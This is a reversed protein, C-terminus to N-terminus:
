DLTKNCVNQVRGSAVFYDPEVFYGTAWAMRTAFTEANVETGFKVNWEMGTADSVRIKPNSGSLNEEIFTFPPKPAAARGGVGGVFDLSEVAGPDHWLIPKGPQSPKKEKQESNKEKQSLKNEKQLAQGPQCILLTLFVTVCALSFKVGLVRRFKKNM